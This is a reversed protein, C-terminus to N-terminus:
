SDEFAEDRVAPGFQVPTHVREYLHGPAEYFGAKGLWPKRIDCSPGEATIYKSQGAGTEALAKQALNYIHSVSLGGEATDIYEQVDDLAKRATELKARLQEIESARREAFLEFHIASDNNAEM